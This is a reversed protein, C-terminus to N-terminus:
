SSSILHKLKNSPIHIIITM